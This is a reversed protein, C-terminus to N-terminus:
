QQIDQHAILWEETQELSLDLLAEPHLAAQQLDLKTLICEWLQKIVKRQNPGDAFLQNRGSEPVDTQVTDLAGLEEIRWNLQSVTIGQLDFLLAISYIDKRTIVRDKLTCVIQEARLAPRKALAAALDCDNVRGQQYFDRNLAEPIYGCIGTLTEFAALAEDFPLHQFGHLTNHHVFDLIPGQGPLVHDLHNLSAIIQERNDDSYLLSEQM